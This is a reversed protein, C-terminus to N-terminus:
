TSQSAEVDYRCLDRKVDCKGMFGVNDHLILWLLLLGLTLDGNGSHGMRLLRLLTSIPLNIGSHQHM